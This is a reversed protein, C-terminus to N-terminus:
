LRDAQSNVSRVARNLVHTFIMTTSVDQHGLLEQSLAFTTGMKLSIPQLLIGFSTGAQHDGRLSCNRARSRTNSRDLPMAACDSSLKVVRPKRAVPEAAGVNPRNNISQRLKARLFFQMRHRDRHRM